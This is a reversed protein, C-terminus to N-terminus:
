FVDVESKYPDPGYRNAGRTGESVALVFLWIVYPIIGLVLAIGINVFERPMGRLGGGAALGALSGISAIIFIYFGGLWWGSRNVDHLRRVHVAFQPLFLALTAISYVPRYGGMMVADIIRAGTGVLVGFLVFFWYEPRSARGTFDLYKSFCISIAESFGISTHSLSSAEAPIAFPAAARLVVEKASKGDILFEVDLGAGPEGAGRWDARGFGYRDSDFATIIGRSESHKYETIRGRM